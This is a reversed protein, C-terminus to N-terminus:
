CQTPDQRVFSMRSGTRVQEFKRVSALGVIIVMSVLSFWQTCIAHSSFVNFATSVGVIGSGTLLVYGVLFLAGTIEKTIKGGVKEAMDAINHCGNHSLLFFSDTLLPRLSTEHADQTSVQQSFRGPHRRGLHELAGLWACQSRRGCCWSRVNGNTYNVCRGGPHSPSGNTQIM